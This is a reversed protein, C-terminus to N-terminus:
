VQESVKEELYLEIGIQILLARLCTDKMLYRLSPEIGIQILLARM